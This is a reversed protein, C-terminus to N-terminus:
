GFFAQLQERDLLRDLIELVEHVVDDQRLGVTVLELGALRRPHQDSPTIRPRQRTPRHDLGDRKKERNKETKSFRM